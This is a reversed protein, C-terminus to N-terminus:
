SADGSYLGGEIMSDYVKLERATMESPLAQLIEHIAPIIVTNVMHQRRGYEAPHEKIHKM